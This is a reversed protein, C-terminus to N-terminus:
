VLFALRYEFERYDIHGVHASLHTSFFPKVASSAAYRYRVLGVFADNIGGRFRIPSSSLLTITFM